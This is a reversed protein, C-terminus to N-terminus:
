YPAVVEFTATQFDVVRYTGPAFDAPVQVGKDFTGLPPVIFGVMTFAYPLEASAWTGDPQRRELTFASGTHMHCTSSLNVLQYPLRGGPAVTTAQLRLEVSTSPEACDPAQPTAAAPAPPTAPAPASPTSITSSYRRGAVTIRLEYRADAATPVTVTFTGNRLTKRALLVRKAGPTASLFALQARRKDSRVKVSLEGGPSVESQKPWSIKVGAVSKPPAKAEAVAPVAILLAAAAAFVTRM